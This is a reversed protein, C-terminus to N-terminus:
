TNKHIVSISSFSVAFCKVNDRSLELGVGSDLGDCGLRYDFRVRAIVFTGRSM